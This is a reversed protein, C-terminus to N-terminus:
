VQGSLRRTVPLRLRAIVSESWIRGPSFIPSNPWATSEVMAASRSRSGGSRIRARVESWGSWTSSFMSRKM